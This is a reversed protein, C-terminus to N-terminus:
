RIQLILMIGIEDGFKLTFQLVEDTPRARNIVRLAPGFQEAARLDIQLAFVQIVGARVLDVVGDALRQECLSHAFRAHDRLGAGPLM